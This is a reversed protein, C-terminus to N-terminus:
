GMALLQVAQLRVEPVPRAPCLLARSTNVLSNWAAVTPLRRRTRCAMGSGCLYCGLPTVVGRRRLKLLASTVVTALWSM